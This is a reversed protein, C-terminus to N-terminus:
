RKVSLLFRQIGDEIPEFIDNTGFSRALHKMKGKMGLKITGIAYDLAEDHNDLHMACVALEYWIEPNTIDSQIITHLHHSAAQYEGYQILLRAQLLVSKDPLHSIAHAIEGLIERNQIQSIIQLDQLNKIEDTTTTGTTIVANRTSEGQYAIESILDAFGQKLTLVILYIGNAISKLIELAEDRQKLAQLQNENLIRLEELTLEQGELLKLGIVGLGAVNNALLEQSDILDQLAPNLQKVFGSTDVDIVTQTPYQQLQDIGRILEPIRREVLKEVSRQIKVEPNSGHGNVYGFIGGNDRPDRESM